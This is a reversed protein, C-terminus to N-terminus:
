WPHRRPPSPSEHVCPLPGVVLHHDYDLTGDGLSDYHHILGGAAIGLAWHDRSSHFIPLIVLKQDAALQTYTQYSQPPKATIIPDLVESRDFGIAKLSEVIATNSLKDGGRILDIAHPM